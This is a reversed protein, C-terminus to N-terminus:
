PMARARTGHLKRSITLLLCLADEGGGSWLPQLALVCLLEGVHERVAYDGCGGHDLLPGRGGRVVRWSLLVGRPVHAMVGVREPRRVAGAPGSRHAARPPPAALACGEIMTLPIAMGWCRRAGRGLVGRRDVLRTRGLVGGPGAGSLRCGAAGCRERAAYHRWRYVSAALRRRHLGGPRARHPAGGAL